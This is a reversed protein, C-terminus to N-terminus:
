SWQVLDDELVVIQGSAGDVRVRQGTHLRQTAKHVGVVAPLGYERAVVAGHTMMGGVEMVLGGAILFLPTWSPDTGPCVLIEGPALQATRPDLVIRISGEIVGPSVPDGYIAADDDGVDSTTVGSYFAQGDSLMLRPVQRRRTEHEISRRRAKVLDVWDRQEGAALADLEDIHLYFIGDPRGLIGDAVLQAGDALLAQRMIGFIRVVAFKPAERLGVLARLVRLATRVRVPGPAPFRGQAILGALAQSAGPDVYPLAALVLRRGVRNRVLGTVNAWLREGAEWLVSQKDLTLQYGLIKGASILMASIADRGLPTM